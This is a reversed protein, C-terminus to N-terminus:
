GKLGYLIIIANAIELKIFFHYVKMLGFGNKV